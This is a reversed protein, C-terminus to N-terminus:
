KKNLRWVALYSISLISAVLIAAVCNLVLGLETVQQIGAYGGESYWKFPFGVSVSLRDRYDPRNVFLQYNYALFGIITLSFILASVM